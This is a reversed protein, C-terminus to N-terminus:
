WLAQWAAGDYIKAKNTNSDYWLTGTAPSTPTATLPLIHGYSAIGIVGTALRYVEADATGSGVTLKERLTMSAGHPNTQEAMHATLTAAAAFGTHGSSAFDLQTLASHSSVGSGSSAGSMLVWTSAGRRWLTPAAATATNIFLDGPHANADAPLSTGSAVLPMSWSALGYFSWNTPWPYLTSGGSYVAVVPILVLMVLAFLQKKM